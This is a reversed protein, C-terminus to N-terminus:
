IPIKQLYANLIKEIRESKWVFICLVGNFKLEKMIKELLKTEKEKDKKYFHFM